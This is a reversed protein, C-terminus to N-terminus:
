RMIEILTLQVVSIIVGILFVKHYIEKILVFLTIDNINKSKM